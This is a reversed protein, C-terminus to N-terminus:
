ERDRVILSYLRDLEDASFYDIQITGKGKSRAQELIRVRTGLIRELEQVAARVNPDVPREKSNSKAPQEPPTTEAEIRRVSWQESIALSALRRQEGPDDIKLLARAHGPSLQNAAVLDQIEQPLQLLRISNTITARDKGTRRGIEEHNLGLDQRLKQFALATEIPNLNERQINEVLALELMRGDAVDQISVPVSELGVLQAARWRREGAVIQYGDATKRVVIPQIIGNIRISEALEELQAANFERRPQFPNPAMATTALNSPTVEQPNLSSFAHASSRAPILTSLGRGLAQKTM